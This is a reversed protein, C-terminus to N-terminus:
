EATTGGAALIEPCRALLQEMDQSQDLLPLLRQQLSREAPSSPSQRRWAPLARKGARFLDDLGMREARQGERDRCVATLEQHWQRLSLPLPMPDRDGASEREETPAAPEAQLDSEAPPPPAAEPRPVAPAPGASKLAPSFPEVANRDMTGTATARDSASPIQESRTAKDAQRSRAPPATTDATQDGAAPVTASEQQMTAVPPAPEGDIRYGFPNIDLFLGVCIVAAMASVLAALNAPKLYFPVKEARRRRRGSELQLEMLVLWEGYCRRCLSIHRLAEQKEEATCYGSVFAAMAEPSLCEGPGTKTETALGLLATKKRAASKGAIQDEAM